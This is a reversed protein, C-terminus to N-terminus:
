NWTLDISHGTPNTAILGTPAAPATVDLTTESAFNSYSSNSPVGDFAMIVYYYTPEQTLQTVLYQTLANGVTMIHYYPGASGAGTDNMLIHYGAIDSEPNKNWALSITFGTPNKAVLGTPASPAWDVTINEMLSWQSQYKSNYSKVRYYYTDNAKNSFEFSTKTGNYIETPLSFAPNDAEELVYGIARAAKKWLVTYNGDIDIDGPDLLDPVGPYVWFTGNMLPYYDLGLHPIDTDGIGDGAPRGGSGNDLGNYDSWFNGEQNSNNYYNIGADFAQKGNDIIENHFIYNYNSETAMSSSFNIGTQNNFAIINKYFTNNTCKDNIRLGRGNDSINNYKIINDVSGSHIYMGINGNNNCTNNALTTGGTYGMYIGYKNRICTNNEFRSQHAYSLEMGAKGTHRKYTNNVVTNNKSNYIYMGNYDNSYFTNNIIINHSSKSFRAGYYNYSLNNDNIKNRPSIAVFLGYYSNGTCTSNIVKINNSYGIEIGTTCNSTDQNRITVDSCNALIIEGAGAPVEGGTINRLYYIPKGNVTNNKDIIHTNWYEKSDMVDNNIFISCTLMTNYIITNSSCRFMYMGQYSCNFTNNEITVGNSTTIMLGTTSNTCNNNVIINNDSDSSLQIARFRNSSFSNNEVINDTSFFYLHLGTDTNSDFTNNMIRNNDGNSSYYGKKNFTFNNNEITNYNAYVYMGYENNNYFTNNKIRNGESLTSDIVVGRKSNMISNNAIVNFSCSYFLRMGYSNNTIICNEIKCYDSDWLDLGSATSATGSNRITFGSINVWNSDIDICHGNKGGDITTNGSGNGILNISHTIKLPQRYYGAWVKIIDGTKSANIADQITKHHGGGKCDVTIIAAEVGGEDVVGEYILIGIFGATILTFVLYISLLNFKIKDAGLRDFLYQCICKM